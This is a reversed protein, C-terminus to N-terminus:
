NNFYTPSKLKCGHAFRTNRHLRATLDKLQLLQLQTQLLFPQLLLLLLKPLCNLSM